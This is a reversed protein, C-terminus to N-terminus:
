FVFRTDMEGWGGGGVIVKMKANQDAGGKLLVRVVGPSGKYAANILPTVGDQPARLTLM